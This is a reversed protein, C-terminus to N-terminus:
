EGSGSQNDGEEPAEYVVTSARYTRYSGDIGKYQIIVVVTNPEPQIHVTEGDIVTDYGLNASSQAQPVFVCEAKYTYLVQDINSYKELSNVTFDDPQEAYVNMIECDTDYITGSGDSAFINLYLNSTGGAYSVKDAYWSLRYNINSPITALTWNLDLGASTLNIFGTNGSSDTLDGRKEFYGQKQAVLKHLGEELTVDISGYGMKVNDLWIEANAPTVTLKLHAPNELLPQMILSYRNTNSTLEKAPYDEFGEATARVVDGASGSTKIKVVATAIGSTSILMDNVYIYGNSIIANNNKNYCSIEMIDYGEPLQVAGDKYYNYGYATIQTSGLDKGTISDQLTFAGTGYDPETRPNNAIVDSCTVHFTYQGPEYLDGVSVTNNNADKITIAPKNASLDLFQPVSVVRFPAASYVTIDAGNIYNDDKVYDEETEDYNYDFIISSTMSFPIRKYHSSYIKGVWSLAAWSYTDLKTTQFISYVSTSSTLALREAFTSADDDYRPFSTSTHDYSGRVKTPGGTKDILTSVFAVRSGIPINPFKLQMWISFMLPNDIGAVVMGNVADQATYNVGEYTIRGVNNLDIIFFGTDGVLSGESNFIAGPIPTYGQGYSIRLQGNSDVDLKLNSLPKVGDADRAGVITTYNVGDYAMKIDGNEIKLKINSLDVNSTPITLGTPQWDPSAATKDATYELTTVGDVTNARFGLKSLDITSEKQKKEVYNWNGDQTFWYEVPKTTGNVSELLCFTFGKPINADNNFEARIATKAADLNEYPGYAVEVSPKFKQPFTGKDFLALPGQVSIYSSM